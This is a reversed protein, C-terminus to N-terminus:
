AAAPLHQPKPESLAQPHHGQGLIRALVSLSEPPVVATAGLARALREEAAEGTATLYVVRPAGPLARLAPLAALPNIGHAGGDLLVLDPALAPLLRLGAAEGIEGAVRAGAALVVVKLRGRAEEDAVIAVTIRAHTTRM